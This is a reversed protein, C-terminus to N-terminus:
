LNQLSTQRLSTLPTTAAYRSDKPSPAPLFMLATSGIELSIPDILASFYEMHGNEPHRVVSYRREDSCKDSDSSETLYYKSGSETTFEITKSM